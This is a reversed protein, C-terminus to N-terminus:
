YRTTPKELAVCSMYELMMVYNAMNWGKFSGSFTKKEMGSFHKVADMTM